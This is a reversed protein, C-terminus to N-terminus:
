REAEPAAPFNALLDNTCGVRKGTNVFLGAQLVILIM